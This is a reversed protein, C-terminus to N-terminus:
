IFSGLIFGYGKVRFGLGKREVEFGYYTLRSVKVRYGV